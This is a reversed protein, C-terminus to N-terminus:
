QDDEGPLPPFVPIEGPDQYATPAAPPVEDPAVEAPPVDGALPAPPVDAPTAPADFAPPADPAPVDVPATSNPMSGFGPAAAASVGRDDGQGVTPSIVTPQHVRLEGEAGPPTPQPAGQPQTAFSNVNQQNDAPPM